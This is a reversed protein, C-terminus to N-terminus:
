WHATIRYGDREGGDWWYDVTPRLKLEKCKEYVLASHGTLKTPDCGKKETGSYHAFDDVIAEFGEQRAAKECIAPIADTLKKARAVVAPDTRAVDAATRSKSTTALSRLREHLPASPTPTRPKRSVM